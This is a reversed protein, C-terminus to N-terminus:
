SSSTNLAAGLCQQLDQMDWYIQIMVQTLDEEEQDMLVVMTQQHLLQLNQILMRLIQDRQYRKLMQLEMTIM